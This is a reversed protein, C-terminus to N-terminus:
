SFFLQERKVLVQPSATVSERVPPAARQACGSLLACSLLFTPSRGGGTQIAAWGYGAAAPVPHAAIPVSVNIMFATVSERVPPAARQACGSLLACSLLFTLAITKKM